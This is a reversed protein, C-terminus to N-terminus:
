LVFWATGNSMLQVGNYNGFLTFSAQGDITDAGSPTITINNTAALGGVDKIVVLKKQNSTGLGSILPLTIACAGTTTYSVAVIYDTELVTYSAANIATLTFDDTTKSELADVRGETEDLAAKVDTATLGSVTNDYTTSVATHVHGTDSKTALDAIIKSASFLETTLTGSDNIVRHLTADAIHTDQATGDASVDRGAVTGSPTIDVCALNKCEVDALTSVDATTTPETATEYFNWKADTADRVVGGYKLAGDNYAGYVGIDVLNTTINNSALKMLPDAVAVTTSNVTTTTGSVTLDGSVTLAAFQPAATTRVDQDVKVDYDNKFVSVDVGDTNASPVVNACTIDGSTTIPGNFSTIFTM